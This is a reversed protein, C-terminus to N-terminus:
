QWSKNILHYSHGEKVNTDSKIVPSVILELSKNLSETLYLLKGQGSSSLMKQTIFHQLFISDEREPQVNIAEDPTLELGVSSCKRTPSGCVVRHGDSKRTTALTRGPSSKRRKM